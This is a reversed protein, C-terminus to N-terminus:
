TQSREDIYSIPLWPRTPDAATLVTTSPFVNPTLKPDVYGFTRALSLIAREAGVKRSLQPTVWVIRGNVVHRAHWQKPADSRVVEFVERMPAM